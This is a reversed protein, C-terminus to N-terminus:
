NNKRFDPEPLPSTAQNTQNTLKLYFISENEPIDARLGFVVRHEKIGKTEILYKIIENVRIFAPVRKEGKKPFCHMAEWFVIEVHCSPYMLLQQVIRDLVLKAQKTLKKSTAKFQIAHLSSSVGSDSGRQISSQYQMISKSIGENKQASLCYSGFMIFVLVFCCKLYLNYKCDEKAMIPPQVVPQVPICRTYYIYM